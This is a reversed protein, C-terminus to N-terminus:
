VHARGIQMAWEGRTRLCAACGNAAVIASELDSARWQAVAQAVVDRRPEAKLVALAAARHHPRNTHIRIWSDRTRYDGALDDWIPPMQWGMPRISEKFWFSAMRRDVTVTPMATGRISAFESLALGAAAVSAAALDSVAFVSAFAGATSFHVSATQATDGGLGYWIDDLLRSSVSFESDM